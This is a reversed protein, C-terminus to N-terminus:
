AAAAEASDKVTPASSGSSAMRSGGGAQRTGTVKTATSNASARVPATLARIPPLGSFRATSRTTIPPASPRATVYAM